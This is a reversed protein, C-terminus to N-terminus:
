DISWSGDWTLFVFPDLNVQYYSTSWHLHPGTSFGTTGVTGIVQGKIVQDQMKVDLTDMHLYVTFVGLGHDLIVSNGTLQLFEAFVVQGTNSALVPTGTPAALDIGNHRYTTLSGNVTRRTGYDTTLRGEIPQIFAGQWLQEPISTARVPLFKKHYEAYAEDTRTNAEIATDVVLAQLGFRRNSVRLTHDERWIEEGNSLLIVEFVYSGASVWYDLTLWAYIEDGKRVWKVEDVLSQEFAPIAEEPVNSLLLRVFGGQQQDLSSLTLQPPLTMSIDFQYTQTGAGYDNVHNLTVEISRTGHFPSINLVKNELRLVESAEETGFLKAEVSVNPDESVVELWDGPKLVVHKTADDFPRELHSTLSPFKSFRWTALRPKLVQGNPLRLDTQPGSAGPFYVDFPDHSLFGQVEPDMFSWTVWQNGKLTSLTQHNFDIRLPRQETRGSGYTEKIHLTTIPGDQKLVKQTEGKLVKLNQWDMVLDNQTTPDVLVVGGTEDYLTLRKLERDFPHPLILTTMGFFVIACLVIILTSVQSKKM